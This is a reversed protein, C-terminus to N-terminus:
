DEHKNELLIKPGTQYIDWKWLWIQDYPIRTFYPIHLHSELLVLYVLELDSLYYAYASDLRRIKYGANVLEKDRIIDRDFNHFREGDVEIILSLEELLIDPKYGHIRPNSIVSFNPFLKKLRNYLFLEVKSKHAIRLMSAIERGHRKCMEIYDSRCSEKWNRLSDRSRSRMFEYNNSNWERLLNSRFEPHEEHFKNLNRIGIERKLEPNNRAWKGFNDKDRAACVTSCYLRFRYHHFDIAANNNCNVSKCKPIEDLNLLLRLFEKKM